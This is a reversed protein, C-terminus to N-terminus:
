ASISATAHKTVHCSIDAHLQFMESVVAGERQSSVTQEWRWNGSSERVDDSHAKRLLRAWLWM